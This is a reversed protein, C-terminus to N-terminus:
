VDERRSLFYAEVGNKLAVPSDTWALGGSADSVLDKAPDFQHRYLIDHRTMYGRDDRKGHYMDEIHLRAYDVAEGVAGSWRHAWDMFHARYAESLNRHGCADCVNKSQTLGAFLPHRFDDALGAIFMLKDGGGVIASEFLMAQQLVEARAAWGFGSQGGKLVGSLMHRGRRAPQAYLEGFERFYRVASFAVMPPGSAHSRIGITDFVQCLNANDLRHSLELPWHTDTFVIDGDLWAIKRYGEALLQRIGINLLREKHWLVNTTRLQIVDTHDVVSFETNGFALEVVLCRVGSARMGALFAHFNRIRQLSGGPNFFCSVVALERAPLVADPAYQQTQRHQPTVTRLARKARHLEYLVQRAAPIDRFRDPGLTKLRNIIYTPTFKRHVPTNRAAAKAAATSQGAKKPVSVHHCAQCELGRKLRRNTKIMLADEPTYKQRNAHPFELNPVPVGLFGCLKEWGDGKEVDIVLLRGTGKFYAEVERNYREFSEVMSEKNADHVRLHLQYRALVEPKTVTIWRETSRWWSQSERVTLIFRSDPFREHAQRYMTWMNWPRDEFSKYRAAIDLMADYSKNKYFHDIQRREQPGYAKPSAIPTLKLAEFCHHLTSTGTKNMGVCFVRETIITDATM